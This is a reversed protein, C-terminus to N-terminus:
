MIRHGSKLHGNPGRRRTPVQLPVSIEAWGDSKAFSGDGQPSYSAAAALKKDIAPLSVNRLDSPNFGPRLLVNTLLEERSAISKNSGKWFWHLLYFTSLNPCPAIADSISTIPASDDPTDSVVDQDTFDGLTADQDPITLPKSPYIRFRGFTDPPTEFPVLRLRTRAPLDRRAPPPVEEDLPPPAEPLADFTDRYGQLLRRARSRTAPYTSAAAAPSAPGAGPETNDPPTAGQPGPINDATDILVPAASIAGSADENAAPDVAPEDYTQVPQEARHQRRYPFYRREDRAKVVPCKNEHLALSRKNDYRQELCICVYPQLPAM